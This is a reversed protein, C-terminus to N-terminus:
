GALGDTYTMTFSLVSKYNQHHASVRCHSTVISVVEEKTVVKTSTTELM